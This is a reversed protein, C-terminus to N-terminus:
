SQAAALRQVHAAIRLRRLHSRGHVLRRHSVRTQNGHRFTRFACCGASWRRSRRRPFAGFDRNGDFFRAGFRRMLKCAMLGVGRGTAEERGKAGYHEVPKGTVCAPNFGHYKEWQNRMWAMESSGAGMDPAPIDTDPGIVDHIQDIFKRPARRLETRSFKGPDIRIGGKAGVYPLNALATKWTMLSALGRVEDLDVQPHYRMGGKMPGRAANHQVRYGLFSAIRGDDLTIIIRVQVERNPTTLIARWSPEMDILDAARDFFVQTAQVTKM